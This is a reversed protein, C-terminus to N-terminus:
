SNAAPCRRPARTAGLASGNSRPRGTAPFCRPRPFICFGDEVALDLEELNEADALGLRPAIDRKAEQFIFRCALDSRAVLLKLAFTTKGSGSRGTVFTCGPKAELQLNLLQLNEIKM